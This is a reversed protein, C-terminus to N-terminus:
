CESGHDAFDDLDKILLELGALLPDVDYDWREDSVDFSIRRALPLLDKPLATARPMSANGVLVPILRIGDRALATALELRVSLGGWATPEAELPPRQGVSDSVLRKRNIHLENLRPRLRDSGLSRNESRRM